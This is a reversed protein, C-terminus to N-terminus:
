RRLDRRHQSLPPPAHSANRSREPSCSARGPPSGSGTIGLAALAVGVALALRRRPGRATAPKDGEGALCAPCAQATPDIGELPTRCHPCTPIPTSM